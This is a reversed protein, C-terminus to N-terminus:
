GSTHRHGKRAGPGRSGAGPRRAVPIVFKEATMTDSFSVVKVDVLGARKGAAMTAAETVARDGKRRLTWIAGAPVIASVLAPLREFSAATDVVVFVVDISPTRTGSPLRRVVVAGAGRLEELFDDPVAGLALVRTGRKIGLKTLRSPPNTIRAAWKGAAAGLGMEVVRGDFEIRMWDGSAVAATVAQLPIALRVPGRVVLAQQELSATGHTTKGDIRIDCDADYGM